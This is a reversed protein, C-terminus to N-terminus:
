ITKFVYKMRRNNIHLIYFKKVNEAAKGICYDMLMNFKLKKRKGFKVLKTVNLTKIFTVMPNPAKIWLKYATLRSTDEPQIEKM